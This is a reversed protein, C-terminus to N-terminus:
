GIINYNITLRDHLTAYIAATLDTDDLTVNYENIVFESAFEVTVIIQKYSSFTHDIMDPCYEYNDNTYMLRDTTLKVDYELENSYFLTTRVYWDIIEEDTASMYYPYYAAFLENRVENLDTPIMVALVQEAAPAQGNLSFNTLVLNM